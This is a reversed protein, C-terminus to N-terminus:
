TYQTGIHTYLDGHSMQQFAPPQSELFWLPTHIGDVTSNCLPIFICIYKLCTFYWVYMYAWTCGVSGMCHVYTCNCMSVCLCMCKWVRFCFIRVFPYPFVLPCPNLELVLALIPVGDPTKGPSIRLCSHTPKPKTTDYLFSCGFM